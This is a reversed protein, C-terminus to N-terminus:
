YITEFNFLTLTLAITAASSPIYEFNILFWFWVSEIVDTQKKRPLKNTKVLYTLSFKRLQYQFFIM